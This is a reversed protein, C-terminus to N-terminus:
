GRKKSFSILLVKGKRIEKKTKVWVGYNKSTTEKEKDLIDDDSYDGPITLDDFAM